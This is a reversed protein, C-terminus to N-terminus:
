SCTARGFVYTTGGTPSAVYWCDLLGTNPNVIVAPNECNYHDWAGPPGVDIFPCGPVEVYHYFDRTAYAGIAWSTGGWGQTPIYWANGIHRIQGVPHVGLSNWSKPGPGILPYADVTWTIGDTSVAHGGRYLSYDGGSSGGFLMHWKGDPSDNAPCVIPGQSVYSNWTGPAGPAVLIGGLLPWPGAPFNAASCSWGIIHPFCHGYMRWSGDPMLIPYPGSISGDDVGPQNGYNICPAASRTWGGPYSSVSTHMYGISLNPPHAPYFLYVTSGSQVLRPDELGVGEWALTPSLLPNEADKTANKFPNRPLLNCAAPIGIM